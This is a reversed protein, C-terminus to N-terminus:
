EVRTYNRANRDVIHIESSGRAVNKRAYADSAKREIVVILEEVFSSPNLAKTRFDHLWNM